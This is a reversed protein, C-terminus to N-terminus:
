EQQMRFYLSTKLQEEALDSSEERMVMDHAKLNFEEWDYDISHDQHSTPVEYDSIYDLLKNKIEGRYEPRQSGLGLLKLADRHGLEEKDKSLIRELRPKDLNDKPNM